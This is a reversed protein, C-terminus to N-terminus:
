YQGVEGGNLGSLLSHGQRALEGAVSAERAKGFLFGQALDCGLSRLHACQQETEVGEATVGLKLHHALAVVSRVIEPHEHRGAIFSRDLKLGTIPLSQLCALSSYGTGFDDLVVRMGADRVQTLVAVARSLDAVATSETVEVIIQAPDVGTEDLIEVLRDALGPDDLQPAAFNVGVFISAAGPREDRWARIQRCVDAFLRAGIAAILGNDEIASVFESPMVIGREPHRWRILAEFGSLRGTALNVIPQYFPVFEHADLARHLATELRLRGIVQDRMAPDFLEVRGKGLGKARAMATGANRLMDRPGGHSSGTAIGISATVFVDGGGLSFVPALARQLRDATRVADLDAAEPLLIAFEDSGLRAITPDGATAGLGDQLREAAARLLQDGVSQGLSDNVLKFGDLDLFLVACTAGDGAGRWVQELRDLFLVQNPLGTLPDAVKASTIDSLSGAIRTPEGTAGLVALGRARVWRFSGGEHRIRHESEFHPARGDLHDALRQRLVPLDDAHVRSFWEEPSPELEADAEGVISKWRDSYYITGASLDWDWLGDNAGRAALAYREESARLRDEADKRALQTRIRALAVQYDIPKTVYDDAGLDLAGVIDRSGSQATVMIVPLRAATWTRRIVELVDLGSLSGLNIDLLVISVPATELYRLAEEGSAALAVPYGAQTLRRRLLDRNLENDDVVLVPDRPLGARDAAATV